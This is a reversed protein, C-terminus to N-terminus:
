INLVNYYMKGVDIIEYLPMGFFATGGRLNIYCESRYHRVEFMSAADLVNIYHESCQHLGWFMPTASRLVRSGNSRLREVNDFFFAVLVCFSCLFFVAVEWRDESGKLTRQTRWLRECKVFLLIFYIFLLLRGFTMLTGCLGWLGDSGKLRILFLAFCFVLLFCCGGM